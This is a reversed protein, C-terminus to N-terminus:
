VVSKRDLITCTATIVIMKDLFVPQYQELVKRQKSSEGSLSYLEARRKAFGLFLAVMLGCLLIWHSPAIGVGTTGALIRLIFGAAIIFVDLIVVHKLGLSYGVNLLVYILLILTISVSVYYGLTFGVIWVVLMLMIAVTTSITGAAIPRLRKSAHAADSDRDFLDNLIYVGSAVLSFAVALILVRRVLAPQTWAHGFLVGMFVFGSKVWQKPRLLRWLEKIKTM